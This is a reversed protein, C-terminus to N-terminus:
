APRENWYGEGELGYQPLNGVLGYEFLGYGVDGNCRYRGVADIVGHTGSGNPGIDYVLSETVLEGKYAGHRWEVDEDLYGTGAMLHVPLLQEIEVRLESGDREHCTITGGTLYQKADDLRLAHQLGRLHEIRRTPDNWIRVAEEMVRKGNGLDQAKLMLTYEPFQAACYLWLYNQKSAASIGAPEQEGIPRIGWSRDRYGSWQPASAERRTGDPLTMWGTYHGMQGYRTIDRVIRGHSARMTQQPELTAPHAGEFLLDAEIGSENPAITIRLKRLGEVVEVRMPGCSTDMRDGMRRSSRLVHQKGGLRLTAFGDLTGLNPYLGIGFIMSLDDSSNHIQFYYRDYFNRDSTEVYRVPMAAQHILYDDAESLM